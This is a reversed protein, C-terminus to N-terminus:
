TASDQLQFSGSWTASREMCGGIEGGLKQLAARSMVPRPAEIGTWQEFQEAAQHIFMTLGCIVAAGRTAADQLFRTELPTYVTDFAICDKHLWSSPCPSNELDNMGVSTGNCIVDWHTPQEAVITDIDDTSLAKAGLEAALTEARALHPQLDDRQCWHCCDGRGLGPLAAPM